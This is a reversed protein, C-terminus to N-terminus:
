TVMLEESQSWLIHIIDIIFKEIKPDNKINDNSLLKLMETIFAEETPHYFDEILM